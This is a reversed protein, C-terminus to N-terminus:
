KHRYLLKTYKITHTEAARCRNSLILGSCSGLRFLRKSSNCINKTNKDNGKVIKKLWSHQNVACISYQPLWDLTPHKNLSSQQMRFYAAYLVLVLLASSVFSKWCPIASAKRGSQFRPDTRLIELCLFLPLLEQFGWLGRLSSPLSCSHSSFSSEGWKENVAAPRNLPPPSTLVPRFSSLTHVDPEPKSPIWLLHLICNLSRLWIANDCSNEPFNNQLAECTLLTRPFTSILDSINQSAHTSTKEESWLKVM